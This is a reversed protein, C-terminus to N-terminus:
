YAGSAVAYKCWMQVRKGALREEGRGGSPSAAMQPMGGEEFEFGIGDLGALGAQGAAQVGTRNREICNLERRTWFSCAASQLSCVLLGRVGDGRKAKEGARTKKQESSQAAKRGSKWAPPQSSDLVMGAACWWCGKWNPIVSQHKTHEQIGAVCMGCM